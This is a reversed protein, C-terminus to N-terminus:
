TPAPFKSAKRSPYERLSARAADSVNSSVPRSKNLDRLVKLLLDTAIECHVAVGPRVPIDAVAATRVSRVFSRQFSDALSM